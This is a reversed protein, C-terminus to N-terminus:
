RKSLMAMVELKEVLTIIRNIEDLEQQAQEIYYNKHTQKYSVQHRSYNQIHTEVATEIEQVDKRFMTYRSKWKSIQERLVPFDLHSLIEMYINLGFM